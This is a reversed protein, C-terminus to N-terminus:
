RQGPQNANVYIQTTVIERIGSLCTFFGADQAWIKAFGAERTVNFDSKGMLINQTKGSVQVTNQDFGLDQLYGELEQSVSKGM